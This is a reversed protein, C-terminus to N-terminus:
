STIKYYKDKNPITVVVGNEKEIIVIDFKNNKQNGSKGVCHFYGIEYKKNIEIGFFYCIKGFITKNPERFKVNKIRLM